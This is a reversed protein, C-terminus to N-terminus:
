RKISPGSVLNLYVFMRQTKKGNLSGFPYCTYLVLQEKDATLNYADDFNDDYIKTGSVKYRYIGYTTSFIFEDGASVKELGSFYTTDHAGILTTKGFGPLFSGIYTGAGSELQEPRDGFFVPANIKLKENILLGYQDNFNPMSIKNIPLEKKQKKEDGKYSKFNTNRKFALPQTNIFNTQISDNLDQVSMIALYVGAVVILGMVIPIYVYRIIQSISKYSFSQLRAKRTRRDAVELEDDEEDYIKKNTKRFRKNLRKFNLVVGVICLLVVLAFIIEVSLNKGDDEEPIDPNDAAVSKTSTASEGTQKIIEGPDIAIYGDYGKNYIAYFHNQASDYELYLDIMSGAKQFNIYAKSFDKFSGGKKDFSEKQVLAESLYKIFIKAQDKSMEIEDHCLYNELQNIYRDELKVPFKKDRLQNLVEKENKDLEGAYVSVSVVLIMMTMLLVAIIKRM